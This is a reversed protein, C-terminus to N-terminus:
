RRGAHLESPDVAGTHCACECPSGDNTRGQCRSHRPQEVTGPPKCVWTLTKKREEM